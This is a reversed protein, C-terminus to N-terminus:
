CSELPHEPTWRKNEREWASGCTLHMVKVWWVRWAVSEGAFVVVEVGEANQVSGRRLWGAGANVM